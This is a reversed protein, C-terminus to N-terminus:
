YKYYITEKKMQFGGGEERHTKTESTIREGLAPKAEGRGADLAEPRDKRRKWRESMHM